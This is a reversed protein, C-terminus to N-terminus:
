RSGAEEGRDQEGGDYEDAASRGPVPGAIGSGKGRVEGRDLDGVVVERASRDARLQLGGHAPELLGKRPFDGRAVDVDRRWAGAVPELAQSEAAVPQDDPRHVAPDEEGLRIVAHIDRLDVLREPLDQRWSLRAGACGRKPSPTVPVWIDEIETAM